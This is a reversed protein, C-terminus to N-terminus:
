AAKKVLNGRAWDLLVDRVGESATHFGANKIATEIEAKEMRTVSGGIVEKRTGRRRTAKAPSLM